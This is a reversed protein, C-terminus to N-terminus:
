VTGSRKTQCNIWKIFEPDGEKIDFALIAPCTYPHLQKIKDIVKLTNEQSTKIFASIEESQEIKGEWEYISNIGPMINVCAVLKEKVLTKSISIATDKAPFTAYILTVEDSNPM